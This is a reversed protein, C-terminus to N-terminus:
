IIIEKLLCLQLKLFYFFIKLFVRIEVVYFQLFHKSIQGPLIFSIMVKRWIAKMVRWQIRNFSSLGSLFGVGGECIGVPLFEQGYYLFLLKLLFVNSLSLTPSM